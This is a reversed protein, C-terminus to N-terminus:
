HSRRPPGITRRVAPSRLVLAAMGVLVAVGVLIWPLSNSPEATGGAGTDVRDPQEVGTGDGGESIQGRIEGAPFTTTHANVYTNGAVIEAVLDDMTAGELDEMLDDATFTGSALEGDTTGEILEPPPGEPYLWVVVPGNEGAPGLHIHAMEVDTLGSVNVTYSMETGDASLEFVADGTADSEVTGEEPVEEDATMTTTFTRVSEQAIAPSSVALGTAIATVGAIGTVISRRHM